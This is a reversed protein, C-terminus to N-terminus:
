AAVLCPHVPRLEESGGKSRLRLHRRGKKSWEEAVLNELRRVSGNFVVRALTSSPAYFTKILVICPIIVKVSYDEGRDFLLCRQRLLHSPEPELAEIVKKSIITEVPLDGLEALSVRSKGSTIEIRKMDGSRRRIRVGKRWVSGIDVLLLQGVGVKIYGTEEKNTLLVEIDPEDPKNASYSVQGVWLVTWDGGEYPFSRIRLPV